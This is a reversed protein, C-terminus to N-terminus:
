LEAERLLESVPMQLVEAIGVLTSLRPNSHSTDDARGSGRGYELLQVQNKTVGALFALSEQSLGSGRRLRRLAKGLRLADADNWPM